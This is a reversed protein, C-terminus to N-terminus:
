YIFSKFEGVYKRSVPIPNKYPHLKVMYGNSNGKASEIKSLNVIFSRHCRFLNCHNLEEHVSTITSKISKCKLENASLYYIKVNNKDAEAFVFESLKINLDKERTLQNTITFELDDDGKQTDIFSNLQSRLFINYNILILVTAPIIGILFTYCIMYLLIVINFSLDMLVTSFYIYNLISITLILGWIYIIESLLIWKKLNQAIREKIIYNSVYLCAFTIAGFGLSAVAKNGKYLNFNFPQFIFLILTIGISILIISNMNRRPFPYKRQLYKMM